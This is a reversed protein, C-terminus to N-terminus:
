KKKELNRFLKQILYETRTEDSLFILGKLESHVPYQVSLKEIEERKM